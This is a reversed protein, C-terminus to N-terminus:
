ELLMGASATVAGAVVVVAGVGFAIMSAGEFMLTNRGAEVSAENNRFDDKAAQAAALLAGGVALGVVGVGAGVAGGLVLPSARGATDACDDTVAEAKVCLKLEQSKEMAVDVFGRWPAANAYRVEIEHRGVTLKM